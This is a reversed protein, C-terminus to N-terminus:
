SSITPETVRTEAPRPFRTYRVHRADEPPADEAANRKQPGYIAYGAIAGFVLLGV